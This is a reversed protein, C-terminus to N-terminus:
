ACVIVDVCTRCVGANVNVNVNNRVRTRCVGVNVEDRALWGCMILGRRHVQTRREDRWRCTSGPGTVRSFWAGQRRCQAQALGPMLSGHRRAVSNGPVRDGAVTSEVRVGHGRVAVRDMVFRMVDNWDSGIGIGIGRRRAM